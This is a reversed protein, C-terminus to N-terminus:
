MDRIRTMTTCCSSTCVILQVSVKVASNGRPKVQSPPLTPLNLYTNRLVTLMTFSDVSQGPLLAAVKSYSDWRTTNEACCLVITSSLHIYKELVALNTPIINVQRVRALSFEINTQGDLCEQM